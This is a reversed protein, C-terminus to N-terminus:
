TQVKLGFEANGAATLGWASSTNPDVVYQQNTLSPTAIPNPTFATGPSDTGSSYCNNVVTRSGSADLGTLTWLNMSLVTAGAPLSPFRFMDYDGPTQDANYESINAPTNGVNTYNVNTPNTPTWANRGGVGSNANPKDGKCQVTGLYTNLPASGTTDLLYLDDFTPSGTPNQFYFGSVWTNATAKTNLGTSSLISVGNVLAEVTGTSSNITVKLQIHTWTNPTVAGAVSSAGIQTSSGSGSFFALHGDSFVRLNCQFAAAAADYLGCLMNTSSLGGNFRFGAILTTLNTNFGVGCQGTCTLCYGTGFPTGINTFSGSAALTFINTITPDMDFGCTWIGNIFIGAM